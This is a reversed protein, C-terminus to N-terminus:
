AVVTDVTNAAIALLGARVPYREENWIMVGAVPPSRAGDIGDINVM